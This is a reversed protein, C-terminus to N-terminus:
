PNTQPNNAWYKGGCVRVGKAVGGVGEIAVGVVEAVVSQQQTAM